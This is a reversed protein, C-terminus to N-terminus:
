AFKASLSSRPSERPPELTIDIGKPDSIHDLRVLVLLIERHNDVLRFSPFAIGPTVDICTVQTLDAIQTNLFAPQSELDEVGRVICYRGLNRSCLIELLDRRIRRYRPSQSLPFCRQRIAFNPLNQSELLIM